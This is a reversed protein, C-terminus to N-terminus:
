SRASQELDARELATRVMEAISAATVPEGAHSTPRTM